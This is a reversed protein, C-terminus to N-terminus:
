PCGTLRRKSRKTMLWKQEWAECCDITSCSQSVRRAKEGNELKWKLFGADKIVRNHKEPFSQPIERYRLENRALWLDLLRESVYGFVRKGSDAYERIDPRKELEFLM